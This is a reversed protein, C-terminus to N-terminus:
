SEHDIPHLFSFFFVMILVPIPDKGGMHAELGPIFELLRRPKAASAPPSSSRWFM